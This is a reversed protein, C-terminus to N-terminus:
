QAASGNLSLHMTSRLSAAEEKMRREKIDHTMRFLFGKGMQEEGVMESFRKYKAMIYPDTHSILVHRLYRVFFDLSGAEPNALLHCVNLVQM